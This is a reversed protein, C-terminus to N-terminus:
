LSLRLKCELYVHSPWNGEVHPIHRKRGGHLSPDDSSSTRVNSAYLNHFAAPLPPLEGGAKNMSLKRKKPRDTNAGEAGPPATEIDEDESDSYPVLAMVVM